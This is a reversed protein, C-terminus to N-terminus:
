KGHAERIRRIDDLHGDIHRAQMAVVWEVSTHMEEGDPWRILLTHSWAEPKHSLLQVVHARSARFLALSPEIDRERYAWRRAWEDQGIQWYWALTFEGEPNGIARKVFEKWLDDGDAIHHVIQRISWSDDSLALDLDAESLGALAADLRDPGAAYSALIDSRNAPQDNM